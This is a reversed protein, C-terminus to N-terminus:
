PASGRDAAAPRHPRRDRGAFARGPLVALWASRRGAAPLLEGRARSAPSTTRACANTRTAVGTACNNLHCIRLYKCGLVIMPATGFGFSDAGLLAAKVVDLGTKLGGDTQLLTRGRLDNALLAQHAEAVGLEWPVGAYRISSVPSAGTGGDHGSITILDAGAKVVGAAITGVGAHSVLKM